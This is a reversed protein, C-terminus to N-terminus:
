ECLAYCPTCPGCPHSAPTNASHEELSGPLAKSSGPEPPCVSHKLKTCLISESLCWTDAATQTMELTDNRPGKELKSARAPQAQTETHPTYGRACPMPASQKLPLMFILKSPHKFFAAIHFASM